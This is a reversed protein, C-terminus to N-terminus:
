IGQGGQERKPSSPTELKFWEGTKLFRANEFDAPVTFRLSWDLLAIPDEHSVLLIVASSHSQDIDLLTRNMRAAVDRLCEGGPIAIDFSHNHTRFFAKYTEYPKGDFEGMDIERLGENVTPQIGLADSVIEATQEARLLPSHIIHTIGLGMLEEVTRCVEDVGNETLPHMDATMIHSSLIKKTNSESEGHRMAYCINQLTM